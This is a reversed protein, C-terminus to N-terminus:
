QIESLSELFGAEFIEQVAGVIQLSRTSGGGSVKRNNAKVVCCETWLSYRSHRLFNLANM